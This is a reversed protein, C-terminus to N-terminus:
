VWRTQWSSFFFGTIRVLYVCCVCVHRTRSWSVADWSINRWFFVNESERKSRQSKGDSFLGDINLSMILSSWSTEAAADSIGEWLVLTAEEACIYNKDGRQKLPTKKKLSNNQLHPRPPHPFAVCNCYLASAKFCINRIKTDRRWMEVHHKVSMFFNRARQWRLHAM